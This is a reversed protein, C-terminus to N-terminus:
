LSFRRKKNWTCSCSEGDCKCLAVLLMKCKREHWAWLIFGAVLVGSLVVIWTDQMAGFHEVDIHAVGINNLYYLVVATGNNLFHMLISTWLSDTIYFMYGLLIGLFMRPLFGFFQFHIFSFVAASLIIALHPNKLRHTMGQQVVGRFTLEEGLAPILAIVMLNLLLGGTSNVNLMRETIAAASDELTRMWTQLIELPGGLQMDENWSTLLNTFPLSIFVLLISIVVFFLIPSAIKRFGLAKMPGEKRTLCYYIIPPAVFMMLSGIGQAWKLMLDGGFAMISTVAAGILTCVLFIIAFFFVRMGTSHKLNEVFYNEHM